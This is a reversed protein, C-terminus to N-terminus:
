TPHKLHILTSYYSSSYYTHASFLYYVTSLRQYYLPIVIKNILIILLNPVLKSSLMVSLHMYVKYIRLVSKIFQPKIKIILV